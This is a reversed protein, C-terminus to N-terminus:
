RYKSLIKELPDVYEPINLIANAPSSLENIIEILTTYLNNSESTQRKLKEFIKPILERYSILEDIIKEDVELTVFSKNCDNCKRGRQFFRLDDFKTYVKAQPSKNEKANPDVACVAVDKCHPCYIITGGGKGM